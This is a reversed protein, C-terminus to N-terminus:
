LNIAVLFVHFLRSRIKNCAKTNLFIIHLMPHPLVCYPFLMSVYVYMYIYMFVKGEHKVDLGFSIPGSWNNGYLVVKFDLYGMEKTVESLGPM